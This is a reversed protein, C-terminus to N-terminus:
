IASAERMAIGHDRLIDDLSADSLFRSEPDGRNKTMGPIIPAFHLTWNSIM